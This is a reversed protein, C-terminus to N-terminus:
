NVNFAVYVGNGRKGNDSNLLLPQILSPGGRGWEWCRGVEAVSLCFPFARTTGALVGSGGLPKFGEVM